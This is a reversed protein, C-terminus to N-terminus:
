GGQAADADPDERGTVGRELDRQLLLATDFPVGDAYSLWAGDVDLQGVGRVSWDCVGAPFTARFVDIASADAPLTGRVESVIHLVHSYREVTMFDTVEVSGYRAIRGVDNRGLDVLMVHEAREKEDALLEAALADDEGVTRGRPRTGAIPRAFAAGEQAAAPVAPLAAAGILLALMTKTM